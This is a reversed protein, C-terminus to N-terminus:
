TETLNSSEERANSVFLHARARQRAHRNAPGGYNEPGLKQRLDALVRMATAVSVNFYSACDKVSVGAERMLRMEMCDVPRLAAHRSM